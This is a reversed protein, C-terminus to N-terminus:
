GNSQIRHYYYRLTDSRLFLDSAAWTHYEAMFQEPTYGHFALERGAALDETMGDSWLYHGPKGRVPQSTESVPYGCDEVFRRFLPIGRDVFLQSPGWLRPNAEIMVNRRGQRRLEVMVLGHFGIDELLDAYQKAVAEEHVSAEIAAVISGGEAQQILNRQSFVEVGGNKSVHYLLYYSEGQVFEQYYFDSLARESLLRDHSKADPVLIPKFQVQGDQDFYRRPKIVVPFPLGDAPDLEAPVDLGANSCLECFSSKDSLLRYVESDCLPVRLGREELGDREEILIRNLYETSPLVDFTACESKERAADALTVIGDGTLESTTRTFVVRDAYATDFIPDGSERAVIHYPVGAATAFRCFAIVARFNYGSFVLFASENM